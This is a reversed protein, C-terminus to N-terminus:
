ANSAFRRLARFRCSRLTKPGYGNARQPEGCAHALRLHREFAPISSSRKRFRRAQQFARMISESSVYAFQRDSRRRHAEFGTYVDGAFAFLAPREPLNAFDRFREANLKALRPSIHMLDSLRKQPLRAASKALGSAEEDFHSRTATLPPLAREFDLTKAPSLLAIM